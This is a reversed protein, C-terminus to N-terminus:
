AAARGSGSHRKCVHCTCNSGHVLAHTSVQARRRTGEHGRRTVSRQLRWTARLNM